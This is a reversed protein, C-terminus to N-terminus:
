AAEEKEREERAAVKATKKKSGEQVKEDKGKRPIHIYGGIAMPSDNLAGLLLLFVAAILIFEM